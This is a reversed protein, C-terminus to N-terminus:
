LSFSSDNTETYYTSHEIRISGAVHHQDMGEGDEVYITMTGCGGDNNCWDDAGVQDLADYCLSEIEEQFSSRKEGLIRDTVNIIIKSEDTETEAILEDVDTRGDDDDKLFVTVTNISGSDGGGSYGVECRTVNLSKLRAIIKEKTESEYGM